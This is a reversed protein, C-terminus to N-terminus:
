PTKTSQGPYPFPPYFLFSHRRSKRKKIERKGKIEKRKPLIFNGQRGRGCPFLLSRRSSLILSSSVLLSLTGQLFTFCSLSLSPPLSLYSFDDQDQIPSSFSSFLHFFAQFLWCSIFHFLTVTRAYFPRINCHSQDSTETVLGPSACM